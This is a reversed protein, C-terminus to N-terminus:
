TFIDAGKAILAEIFCLDRGWEAARHIPYKKDFELPRNVDLGFKVLIELMEVNEYFILESWLRDNEEGAIPNASVDYGLLMEVMASNGCSIAECLTKNMLSSDEEHEKRLRLELIQRVAVENNVRIAHDLAQNWCKTKFAHPLVNNILMYYVWKDSRLLTCYEKMTLNETIGLLVELPLSKLTTRSM